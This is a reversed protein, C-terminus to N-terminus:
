LRDWLRTIAATAIVAVAVFALGAGTNGYLLNGTAFLASYVAASGLVMCSLAASLSSDAASPAADGLAARVPAWGPGAPRILTYFERLREPATPETAFAVSLWAVTTVGVGVLLQTTTSPVPGILAPHVFQFYAAVGFSQDSDEGVGIM